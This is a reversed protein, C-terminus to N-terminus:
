SGLKKALLQLKVSSTFTQDDWGCKRMLTVIGGAYLAQTEKEMEIEAASVSIGKSQAQEEIQTSKILDATIESNTGNAAKPDSCHRRGNYIKAYASLDKDTLVRDGVRAVVPGLTIQGKAFYVYNYIVWGLLLLIIVTSATLILLNNKSLGTM